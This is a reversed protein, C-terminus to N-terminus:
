GTLKSVGVLRRGFLDNSRVEFWQLSLKAEKNPPYIDEWPLRGHLLYLLVNGLAELDDRRGQEAQGFHVNYSSYPMTRLAVRDERYPKHTGTSPDVYLKVLGFDFLYVIHSKEGVGMVFNEPKTDRLIVGRSHAFEVKNFMQIGLMVVTKCPLESRSLKPLQELNAGLQKLILVYSGRDLGSWKCKCSPIGLHGRL